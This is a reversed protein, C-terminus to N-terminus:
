SRTEHMLRAIIAAAAISATEAKLIYPGLSFPKFGNEFAVQIESADFGGEPGVFVSVERVNKFLELLEGCGLSNSDQHEYALLLIGPLGEAVIHNFGLIGRIEPLDPRGCQQSAEKAIREWRKRKVAAKEPDIRPIARRTIVPNISAVGLETAKEVVLDFKQGKLLAPYLHIKANPSATSVRDLISATLKGDKLSEVRATYITEGLVARFVEKHRLRKALAHVYLEGTLVIENGLVMDPSLFFQAPTHKM